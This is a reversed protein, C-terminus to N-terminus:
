GGPSYTLFGEQSTQSLFVYISRREGGRDAFELQGYRLNFVRRERASLITEKPIHMRGSRRWVVLGADDGIVFLAVREEIFFLGVVTFLLASPLGIWLELRSLPVSHDMPAHEVFGVVLVVLLFSFLGLQIGIALWAWLSSRFNRGAGSM